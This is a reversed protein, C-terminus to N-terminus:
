AAARAMYEELSPKRAHFSWPDAFTPGPYVWIKGAWQVGAATAGSGVIVLDNFGDHDVDMVLIRKGFEDGFFPEPSFISFVEYDLQAHSIPAQSALLILGAILATRLWSMTM